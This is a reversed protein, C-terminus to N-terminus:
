LPYTEHVVHGLDAAVRLGAGDSGTAPVSLGGTALIVRTAELTGLSTEVRWGTGAPILGTVDNDFSVRCRAEAGIRHSRRARRSCPRVESLIESERVRAEPFHRRRARLVRDARAPAMIAANAEPADGSLEHRVTRTRSGGAARQLPRWRQHSIKRGGDKTKEILTVAEGSARAFIAAVLGAAGAGVVITM